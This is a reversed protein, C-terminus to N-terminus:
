QQETQPQEIMEAVVAPVYATFDDDGTFVYIPQLYPQYDYNDFYGLTVNRVVAAPVYDEMALYAEGEILEALATEVPKIPYTELVDYNLYYYNYKFDVISTGRGLAGTVIASVIAQHPKPNYMKYEKALPVRNINVELFTADSLSVAEQLEGAFSKLYRVEGPSTAIDRPLLDVRSLYNKVASIANNKNPVNGTVLLEPRTQFDSRLVFKKSVINLELMYNLPEYKHWRYRNISLVEPEDRFGFGNAIERAREDDMLSPRQRSVQLVGARDSFGVLRGEPIEISIEEPFDPTTEEPFDIPPLKGFGITPPPDPPPNLYRYYSLGAKFVINLIMYSVLAIVSYKIVRRGMETIDSLSPGSKKPITPRYSDNM